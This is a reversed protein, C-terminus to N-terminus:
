GVRLSSGLLSACAAEGVWPKGGLAAAQARRLAHLPNGGTAEGVALVAVREGGEGEGEGGGEGKVFAKAAAKSVAPSVHARLGELVSSAGSGAGLLM